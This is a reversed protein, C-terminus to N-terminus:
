ELMKLKHLKVQKNNQWQEKPIEEHNIYYKEVKMNDQLEILAPGTTSHLLQTQNMMSTQGPKISLLGATKISGAKTDFLFRYRNFGPVAEFGKVGLYDIFYTRLSDGNGTHKIQPMCEFHIFGGNPGKNSVQLLEYQLRGNYAVKKVVNRKVWKVTSKYQCKAKVISSIKAQKVTLKNLFDILMPEINTTQKIQLTGFTAMDNGDLPKVTIAVYEVIHKIKPNIGLQSWETINSFIFDQFDSLNNYM